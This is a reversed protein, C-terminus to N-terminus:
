QYSLVPFAARSEGRAFLLCVFVSLSSRLISSFFDPSTSFMVRVLTGMSWRFGHILMANMQAPETMQMGASITPLKMDAPMFKACDARHMAIPYEITTTYIHRIPICLASRPSGDVTAM